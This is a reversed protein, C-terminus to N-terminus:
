LSPDVMGNEVFAKERDICTACNGCPKEKGEYCSWTLEYPVGLRLGEKVIEAKNKRIFPAEIKIAKGSGEYIAEKMANFFTESCDPYANGAADDVHAGYYIYSCEKSLAISSATSLFLGNRFPVYTSVPNGDSEQLQEMYSSEPIEETSGQLLSCNSEAFVPTLDMVMGDIEYHKLINKAAELEKEHKQGYHISLPIVNEKGFREIAMALCTTSDVGGSFLVMAKERKM